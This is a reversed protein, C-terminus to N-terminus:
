AEIYHRAIEYWDVEGLAGQVLQAIMLRRFEIDIGELAEDVAHEVQDKIEKGLMYEVYEKESWYTETREPAEEALERAREFFYRQVGEDNDLILAVGWTNFNAWGQYGM